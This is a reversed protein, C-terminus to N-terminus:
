GTARVARPSATRRQRHRLLRLRKDRQAGMDGRAQRASARRREPTACGATSGGGAWPEATARLSASTNGRSTTSSM